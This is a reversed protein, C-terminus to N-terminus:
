LHAPALYVAAPETLGDSHEHTITGLRQCGVAEYLRIAAHDKLMVDFAVSLDHENAYNHAALMLHKGAGRQRHEPDIFLRMPIVLRSLDDGQNHNLWLVAADDHPGAHILSIQGIVVDDHLAAWAALERPPTIWGEPDTVGEVPYGDKAHVRVLVAALAPIDASERPRVEIDM